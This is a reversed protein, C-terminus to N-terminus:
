FDFDIGRYSHGCDVRLVSGTMYSSAGSTLTPLAATLEQPDATRGMTITKCCHEGNPGDAIDKVRPTVLWEPALCNVGLNLKGTGHCHQTDRARRRSQTNGQAHTKATSKPGMLLIPKRNAGPDKQDLMYGAIITSMQWTAKLNITMGADWEELIIKFM